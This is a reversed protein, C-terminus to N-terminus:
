DAHAPIIGASARGGETVAELKARHGQEALISKRQGREFSYWILLYDTSMNKSM